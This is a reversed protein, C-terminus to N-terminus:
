FDFDYDDPDLGADELAIRRELESMANLEDIDLGADRLEENRCTETLLMFFGFDLAKELVSTNSSGDVDFLKAFFSM